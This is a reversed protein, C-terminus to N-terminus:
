FDEQIEKPVIKEFIERLDKMLADGFVIVSFAFHNFTNMVDEDEATTRMLLLVTDEFCLTEKPHLNELLADIHIKYTEKAYEFNEENMFDNM